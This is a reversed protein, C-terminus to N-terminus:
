SRRFDHVRRKKKKAKKEKQQQSCTESLSLVTAQGVEGLETSLIEALSLLQSVDAAAFRQLKLSLPHQQWLKPDKKMMDAMESKSTDTHAPLGAWRLLDGLGFRRPSRYTGAAVQSEQMILGHAVKLAVVDQRCDHLVKVIADDELIDRLMDATGSIDDVMDFLFCQTYGEGSPASAASVPVLVQVLCLKGKASLSCGECDVAIAKAQRCLAVVRAMAKKTKLLVPAIQRPKPKFLSHPVCESTRLTTLASDGAEEEKDDGNIMAIQFPPLLDWDVNPLLARLERSPHPILAQPKLTVSLEGNQNRPGLSFFQSEEPQQLFLRIPLKRGQELQLRGYEIGLLDLHSPVIDYGGSIRRIGYKICGLVIGLRLKERNTLKFLRLLNAEQAM